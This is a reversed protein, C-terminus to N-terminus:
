KVADKFLDPFNVAELQLAPNMYPFKRYTVTEEVVRTDSGERKVRGEVLLRRYAAAQAATHAKRRAVHVKHRRHVRGGLELVEPATPDSTKGAFLAPGVVVSETTPDWAFFILRKLTGLHSRPPKGPVPTYKKKKPAPRISTRARTRVFAGAKSLTKRTAKKVASIVAPRDFFMNYDFKIM